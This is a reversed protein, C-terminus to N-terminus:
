RDDRADIATMLGEFLTMPSYFLEPSILRDPFEVHFEEETVIMIEIVMFSSIGLEPMPIDMQEETFEQTSYRRIINIYRTLYNSDM